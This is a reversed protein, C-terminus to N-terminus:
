LPMLLVLGLKQVYCPGIKFEVVVPMCLTDGSGLAISIRTARLCCCVCYWKLIIFKLIWFKYLLEAIACGFTKFQKRCLLWVFFRAMFEIIYIYLLYERMGEGSSECFFFKWIYESNDQINSFITSILNGVM